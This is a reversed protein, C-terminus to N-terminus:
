GTEGTRRRRGALTLLVGLALLASGVGLATLPSVLVGTFATTPPPPVLENITCLLSNVCGPPTPTDIPELYNNLRGNGHDPDDIRAQYTVTATTGAPLSGDIEFVGADNIAGITLGSGSALVPESVITADDLLDSLDDHWAVPADAKGDSNDFTLTYTLVDGPHVQSGSPPDVTKTVKLDPDPNTTCLQNAPECTPPPTSGTPVLFNDLRHDGTDPSDVQVQYTVTATTGAALTGTVTFTTGTVAGVTLGM